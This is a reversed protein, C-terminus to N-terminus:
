VLYVPLNEESSEILGNLDKQMEINGCIPSYSLLQDERFYYFQKDDPNIVTFHVWGNKIWEYTSPNSQIVKLVVEPRHEVILMLRIPDHVEVMQMPLGTRLDGEMGNAVGILGMVNHPLKTGAGLRHNDVRSFYYELNIGGCVPTAANLINSLYKGELDVRYDFTNMFARRDLFLHATLEHRGVICLANTAHNLEPRPEFLSVARLKVKKHVKEPSAHSNILIFRRSREKANNSLATEFIEMNKEHMAIHSAPLVSEDYYEVEDRTTEHLGGVFYSDDPIIIGREKLIARVRYNNGISAIVRANVSGPRGSCAGCDYGAYHTNNVSSAGHGITYIIPAFNDILGISRLLGELRDAMEEITFGIQLDHECHEPGQNEITLKAHKDMHKFSSVVTASHGPRFINIFLQIISWFGLTLSILWGGILSQTHKTFHAEKRRKKKSEIEKILHKPTIPGPCVKTHFKAHEPQFYFAVNFFGPTGYTKCLPDLQEIYTRLSGERDDICFMAQFTHGNHTDPIDVAQDLGKLVQDYYTWEFADQWIQYVESLETSPTPAFLAEPREKISFGLPVINGNMKQGLADIELLLEFTILGQLRIKRSDLLSEPNSENVAVIGSWGPHAFQQDFLYQEYLTEDGVVIKLLEEISAESMLLEKARKTRFLSSFAIKEMTRISALFGMESTPFNWISIGQDLYAGLVKFLLGHVEKDLNIKNISKWNARLQGIRPNQQENFDTNLLKDKWNELNQEGKNQCIISDLIEPNIRKDTYMMRYESLPLYTKYGFIISARHLAEHFPFDQFAHLTNHHVFDKLPAQAPLYHKLTDLTHALDFKHTTM